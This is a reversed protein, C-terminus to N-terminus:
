IKEKTMCAITRVDSVSANLRKIQNERILLNKLDRKEQRTRVSYTCMM